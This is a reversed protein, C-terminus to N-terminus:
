KRNEVELIARGIMEAIQPVISNGLAAVRDVDRSLGNVVRRIEPETHWNGWGHLGSFRGTPSAANAWRCGVEKGCYHSIASGEQSGTPYSLIWVRDRHQPAGVASAPICHWEADYGLAALDGLVEGLGRSLLGSVNEVLIYRPRVIGILRAYEKWLGSRSGTIGERLGADSVDQCPFGGCLVDADFSRLKLIDSFIPIDPWHKKLVARCYPDIECFGITKFGGTRELGLSFGGIGSFLDLVTLM